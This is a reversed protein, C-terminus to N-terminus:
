KYGRLSSVGSYKSRLSPRQSFPKGTLPNELQSVPAHFREPFKGPAFGLVDRAVGCLMASVDGEDPSHGGTRKKFDAKTELALKVQRARHVIRRSTLQRSVDPDLRRIQRARIYESHLVWLETAKDSYKDSYKERGGATLLDGAKTGYNYRVIGQGIAMELADAVSQTGSDDCALLSIPVGQEALHERVQAVIQETVPRKSAADIAIYIRERMVIAPVGPTIRGVEAFQLVCSDGSSTFAPDLAAIKVPHGGAAWVAEEHANYAQLEAETIVTREIGQPPPFGKIMTWVGPSNDNGHEGKLIDDIQPQSILYPYKHIGDPDTIAPSLFGNHHRVKGYASRWETTNEDVSSWGDVPVAFKASTGYFSIPNVLAVLQFRKTAGIKLNYRADFVKPSMLDAEDVILTVWDTHAGQIAGVGQAEVAVGRVSCKTASTSAGTESDADNSNIIACTTKSEKGPIAFYRNNKLIQFYRQVSEYSRMKLAERTTSAMLVVSKTPDLIWSILGFLGFDNSKSCSASGWVVLFDEMTWDYAHEETWPSISFEEPTLLARLGRLLHEGPHLISGHKYPELFHKKSIILDILVDPTDKPWDLGYVRRFTDAM